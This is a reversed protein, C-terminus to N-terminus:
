TENRDMQSFLRSYYTDELLTDAENFKYTLKHFPTMEKVAKWTDEDYQRFLRLLLIHPISNCFPVVREWEEPYTEIALQFFDHFIFYDTLKDHKEWYDYLLALTLRLLPDNSRATIFWNSICTPHGDLGPKLTQFLFLDSDLMYAPINKGSCFVTSDIWTGGYQILLELRLLDSFHTRSITGADIKKQIYAPFTVYSRYNEETLLIIDRDTLNEGLSAYCRKVLDPASDMGQLWCVWVKNSRQRPLPPTQAQAQQFNKIFPRYKKRMKKLIRNNVSLRVIELSKKSFGQMATQTLAFLLVHGRWYQRLIEKGGVKNFIAIFQKM